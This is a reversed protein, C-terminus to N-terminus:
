ARAAAGATSTRRTSSTLATHRRRRQLVGLATDDGVDGWDGGFQWCGLGIEGVQPGTRGFQRQHMTLHKGAQGFREFIMMMLWGLFLAVLLWLIWGSLLASGPGISRGGNAWYTRM